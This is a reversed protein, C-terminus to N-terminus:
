ENNINDHIDITSMALTNAPSVTQDVLKELYGRLLIRCYMEIFASLPGSSWQKM